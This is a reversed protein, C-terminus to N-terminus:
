FKWEKQEMKILMLADPCLRRRKQKKGSMDTWSAQGNRYKSRVYSGTKKRVFYGLNKRTM